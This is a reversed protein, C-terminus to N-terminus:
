VDTGTEQVDDDLLEELRELTDTLRKVLQIIEELERDDLELRVKMLGEFEIRAGLSLPVVLRLAAEEAYACPPFLVGKNLGMSLFGSSPLLCPAMGYVTPTKSAFRIGFVEAWRGSPSVPEMPIV